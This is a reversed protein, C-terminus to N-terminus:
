HQIRKFLNFDQSINIEIINIKLLDGQKINFGKLYVVGKDKDILSYTLKSLTPAFGAGKKLTLFFDIEHKDSNIISDIWENWEKIKNKDKIMSAIEDFTYDEKEM